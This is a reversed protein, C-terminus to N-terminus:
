VERSEFKLTGVSRTLSTIMFKLGSWTASNYGFPTEPHMDSFAVIDGVEVGYFEPNVISGSVILKIDGFINNYYDAFGNSPSQDLAVSGVNNVLADLKIQKINEKSQINWNDRVSPSDDDEHTSSSIYKNEAPHKEYSLEVKTLLESFPTHKVGFDKVDEKTLTFDVSPSDPIHIYQASGDAKYRFIFGGEYQLKELTKKLEVPELQWWRLDWGSKSTNLSSWGDPTTTSLGAYRILMDRHADHIETIASSDWSNVLGDSEVYLIDFIDDSETEAEQVFGVEYVKYDFEVSQGLEGEVVSIDVQIEAETLDTSIYETTKSYGGDTQDITAIVSGNLSIDITFNVNWDDIEIEHVLRIKNPNSTSIGTLQKSSTWKYKWRPSSDEPVEVALSAWTADNDDYSQSINSFTSYGAPTEVETTEIPQLKGGRTLSEDIYTYSIDDDNVLEGSGGSIYIFTGLGSDYFMFRADDEDSLDSSGVLYYLNDGRAKYFPIPYSPISLEPTIKAENAYTTVGTQPYAGYAVPAYVNHETAQPISIFDWPRHSTLSLEIKDGDTSIDILRFTGIQVATESNVRSHVTVEQNIYHYAGGFLEQSIPSGNYDYDAITISINGTKATSQALNISERISPKNLIAGEYFDGSYTEDQFALYLFTSNDNALKFLWNETWSHGINPFTIM